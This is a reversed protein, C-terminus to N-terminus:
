VHSLLQAFCCLELCVTEKKIKQLIWLTYELGCSRKWERFPSGGEELSGTMMQDNLQTWSRAVGHDALSKWPIRWSLVSSHTTLEKELPDECSLFQVWDRM